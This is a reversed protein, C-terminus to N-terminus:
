SRADEEAEPFIVRDYIDSLLLGCDIGPLQLTEAAEAYITLTWEHETRRAFHEIRCKDQAVLIYDQMSELRQYHAFKAGRDYAETTPSLVEFIVIPNLLTDFTTDELQPEGCVVVVDPYTYLGTARVQVQMESALARCPQGRLQAHLGGAINMSINNHRLSAGSMAYIRGNIFESKYEAARELELYQQPTYRIDPQSSM